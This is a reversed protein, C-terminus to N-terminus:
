QKGGGFEEILPLIEPNEPTGIGSQNYADIATIDALRQMVGIYFQSAGKVIRHNALVRTDDESNVLNFNMLRIEEEMIRQLIDFWEQKISAAMIGRERETLTFDLDLGKIEPKIM